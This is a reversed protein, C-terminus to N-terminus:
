GMAQGKGEAFLSLLPVEKGGRQLLAVYPKPRQRVPQRVGTTHPVM